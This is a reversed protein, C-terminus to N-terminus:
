ELLKQLEGSEYLQITIDCGGIFKQKIYLQPLTPWSSFEKVGQRISDDELIDFSNFKVKLKNLIFVVQSSFGCQPMDPTGKMFLFVDNNNIMEQIRSKTENTMIKVKQEIIPVKSSM